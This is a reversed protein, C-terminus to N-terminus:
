AVAKGGNTIEIVSFHHLLSYLVCNLAIIYKVYRSFCAINVAHFAYLSKLLGDDVKLVEVVAALQHYFEAPGIALDAAWTAVSLFDSEERLGTDPLTVRSVLLWGERELGSSNELFGRETQVFPKRRQPQYHVALIPNARAFQCAIQSHGLFGCPKHRM